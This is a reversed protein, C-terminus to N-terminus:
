QHTDDDSSEEDFNMMQAFKLAFEAAKNRRAEDTITGTIVDERLKRAEEVMTYYNSMSGDETGSYTSTNLDSPEPITTFVVPISELAGDNIASTHAAAM